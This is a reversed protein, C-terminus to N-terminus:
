GFLVSRREKLLSDIMLQIKSRVQEALKNVLIRDNAGLVRGLFPGSSAATVATTKVFDRREM